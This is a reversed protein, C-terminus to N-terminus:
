FSRCRGKGSRTAQIPEPCEMWSSGVSTYSGVISIIAILLSMGINVPRMLAMWVTSQKIASVAYGLGYLGTVVAFLVVYFRDPTLGYQAIRLGIAYFILGSFIPMVLLLGEVGRRVWDPYPRSGTGDQFVSNIFLMTLLLVSLLLPSASKTDWLPQLGTFPLAALFLLGVFALLPLLSRFIALTIRRLTNIIAGNEKGLAIGFGFMAPLSISVFPTSYFVDKFFSIGVLNFLAVWLNILGWFLGAFLFGIAAIFFNNWSHCFLESYPFIPRGSEQFIQIFPLLIYLSLLSAVALTPLRFSDGQFLTGEGPRQWWVWLTALVFFAAFIGGVM